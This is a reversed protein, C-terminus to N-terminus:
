PSRFIPHLLYTLTFDFQNLNMCTKFFDHTTNNHAALYNWPTAPCNNQHAENAQYWLIMWECVVAPRDLHSCSILDEVFSNLVWISESARSPIQIAAWPTKHVVTWIGNWEVRYNRVATVHLLSVLALSLMWLGEAVSWQKQLFFCYVKGELSLCLWDLIFCKGETATSGM